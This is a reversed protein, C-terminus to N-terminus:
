GLSAWVNDLMLKKNHISRYLRIDLSLMWSANGAYVLEGAALEKEILREPLWGMGYGDLVMRKIFDSLNSTYSYKFPPVYPAKSLILDVVRGFYVNGYGVVDVVQEKDDHIKFVAKGQKDPISVPIILESGLNIYPYSNSDFRIPLAAHHYCILLDCGGEALAVASDHINYSAVQISIKEHPIPLTKLWNPIFDLSLAHGTAIKLGDSIRKKDRLRERIENLKPCIEEALSYFEEGELTLKLPFSSRDIIDFGLWAELSQIRRSFTSQTVNREHAARSFNKTQALCIFDEIWKIDM